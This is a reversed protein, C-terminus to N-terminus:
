SGKSAKRQRIWEAILQLVQPAITEEIRAYETPLGTQCHQFLHNLGRMVRVTVQKNGGLRLAERLAPANEKPPVQLDKEGYIALVACKVRHLTPRPDYTLFFRFWPTTLMSVQAQVGSQEFQKREEESLSEAVHKLAQQLERETEASVKHKKVIDFFRQNIKLVRDVDQPSAGMGRAILATQLALIQEGPLAPAALLVIFSVASSQAAVMPAILAGESHGILGIRSRDIDKRLRLLRIGEIVDQALDASTAQKLDGTSGGVGRDDTRLVAIGRRTLYDALVLFPRHGAVTENRDQAGSGTILMVAPFPPKGAPLTLTGALKVGAKKNEFRVELERYPYPKSPEQPRRVVPPKETRELTLPFTVGSQRWEGVIQKGDESLKGEFLGMVAQVVLRVRGDEFIVESIPIGTAGQDPSDVTGTLSGDARTQIQVVMRLETAGVKLVGQWVGVMETRSQSGTAKETHQNM